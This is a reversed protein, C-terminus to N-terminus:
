GEDEEIGDFADAIPDNENSTDSDVTDKKDNVKLLGHINLKLERSKENIKVTELLYKLINDPMVTKLFETDVTMNELLDILNESVDLNTNIGQTEEEVIKDITVNRYKEYLAKYKDLCKKSNPNAVAFRNSLWQRTDRTDELELERLVYKHARRVGTQSLGFKALYKVFMIFHEETIRPRKTAM